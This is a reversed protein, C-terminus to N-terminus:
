SLRIRPDLYAYTIDAIMNFIVVSAGAVLFFGMVPGPDVNRLGEAFLAGMGRWGFVRETIVAGGIVGGFDLAVLTTIPILGNRFVHRTIVTREPLGKARATRVFDQNMVELMSARTFRSFTALSILILALTPLVLHGASDWTTQWFTGEFNPTRSGITSVPRGLVLGTYEQFARLLHDLFILGGTFLGTLIAAPIAQRRQLGGLAFGLVACVAVTVATLGAFTLLSPDTLVPNLVLYSLTGLVAAAITAYMPGGPRLSGFLVTFGLAIAISVALIFGFGLGPNAFWRTQSLFALVLATSMMGIAATTLRRRIDGSAISGWVLGALVSIVVIVTTPIAPDRLWNNFQIAAYQKLMTSVWFVPLSFFIFASFTVSYDFGSYQRLATIIGIVVGIVIALVTAAIVLQLTASVAQGLLTSVPQGERTVGLDGRVVHALWSLYRVPIPLDLQMREVRDAIKQDRNPSNDERLDALPDGSLATLVYMIFTAALLVFVSVILRRVIFVAM